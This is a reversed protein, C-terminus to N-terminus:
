HILDGGAQPADLLADSLALLATLDDVVKRIIAPNNNADKAVKLALAEGKEFNAEDEGEALYDQVLELIRNNYEGLSEGPQRPHDKRAQADAKDEAKVKAQRAKDDDTLKLSGDWKVNAKELAKRALVAGEHYGTKESFGSEDLQTKAFRLAGYVARLVSQHNQATKRKAENIKKDEIDAKSLGAKSALDVMDGLAKKFTQTDVNEAATRVIQMKTLEEASVESNCFAEYLYQGTIQPGTKLAPSAVALAAATTTHSELGAIVNAHQM